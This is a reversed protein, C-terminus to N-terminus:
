RTLGPVRAVGAPALPYDMSRSAGAAAKRRVASYLGAGLLALVVCSPEPVSLGYVLLSPTYGSTSSWSGWTSGDSLLQSASIPGITGGPSGPSGGPWWEFDCVGSLSPQAVVWFATAPALTLGSSTLLYNGQTIPSPNSLTELSVGPSGGNDSFLSVVLNSDGGQLRSIDLEVSALEYSNDGTTFSVANRLGYIGGASSPWFNRPGGGNRNNPNDPDYNGYILVDARAGAALLLCGGAALFLGLLHRAKGSMRFGTGVPAFLAWKCEM